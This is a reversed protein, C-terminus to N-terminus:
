GEPCYAEPHALTEVDYFRFQALRLGRNDYDWFYSALADAFLPSVVWGDCEEIQFVGDANVDTWSVCYDVYLLDASVNTTRPKGSGRNLEVALVGGDVDSACYDLGTTGDTYCSQVTAAGGPKGLERVFVSYETTGDCNVDPSPLQFAAGNGDTGNADLVQFPGESLMIKARGWLPVFIRHGSNDDMEATKTSTGIVNLNYHPGSPLGNGLWSLGDDTKPKAAAIDFESGATVAPESCGVVFSGLLLAVATLHTLRKM